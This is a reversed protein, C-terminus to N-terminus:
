PVSSARRPIPFLFGGVVSAFMTPKGLLSFDLAPRAVTRAYRVYLTMAVAGVAILATVIPWPLLGMGAVSLGFALGAVGIGSLTMGYLDFPEDRRGPIDPI